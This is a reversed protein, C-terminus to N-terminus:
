QRLARARRRAVGRAIRRRVRLRHPWRVSIVVAAIVVATVIAIAVGSHTRYCGKLSPNDSRAVPENEGGDIVSDILEVILLLSMAKEVLVHLDRPIQIGSRSRNANM